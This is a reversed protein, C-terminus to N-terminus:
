DEDLVFVLPRTRLVWQVPGDSTLISGMLLTTAMLVVLLAAGREGSRRGRMEGTM